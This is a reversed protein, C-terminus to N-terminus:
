QELSVQSIISSSSDDRQLNVGAALEAEGLDGVGEGVGLPYATRGDAQRDM